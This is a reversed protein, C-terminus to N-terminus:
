CGQYFRSFWLSQTPCDGLRSFMGKEDTSALLANKSAQSVQWCNFFSFHYTWITDFQTYLEANQGFRKSALMMQVAIEYGCNDFLPFPGPAPYRGSLGLTELFHVARKMANFNGEVTSKERSWFADLNVRQICALLLSDQASLVDPKSKRLLRFICLDCQFPTTVHDGNWATLLRNLEQRRKRPIGEDDEPKKIYFSVNPDSLYCKTCWMRHCPPFCGQRESFNACTIQSLPTGKDQFEKLESM